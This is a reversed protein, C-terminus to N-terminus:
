GFDKSTTGFRCSLLTPTLYSKWVDTIEEKCEKLLPLPHIFWQPGIPRDLFPAFSPKFTKLELFAKFYFLFSQDYGFGRPRPVMLALRTGEIQRQSSEEYHMQPLFLDLETPFTANLWLQLLWFPGYGLFVSGDGTKKM